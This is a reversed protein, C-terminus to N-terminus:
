RWHVARIGHGALAAHQRPQPNVYVAEECHQMHVLDPESNGYAIVPLGPHARRLSELVRLKEVDRRNPGALRGDLRGGRWRVATCHVEPIGLLRGIEPVYLDPSASLLVVRDGAALHGRVAAVADPFMRAPVTAAAYQVAWRDVAARPLGSFLLFLVAGKLGGRDIRRLLFGLLPVLLLPVRLLRLPHRALLGLVFGQFSDRRTITGDLDFLAIRRVAKAPRM